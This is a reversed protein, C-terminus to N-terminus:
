WQTALEYKDNDILYRVMPLWNGFNEKEVNLLYKALQYYELSKTDMKSSLITAAILPQRFDFNSEMERTLVGRNYLMSAAESFKSQPGSLLKAKLVEAFDTTFKENAVTAALKILTIALSESIRPISVLAEKLLQMVEVAQKAFKDFASLPQNKLNSGYILIIKFVREDLISLENCALGQALKRM